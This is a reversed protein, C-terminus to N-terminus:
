DEKTRIENWSNSKNNEFQEVSEFTPCALNKQCINIIDLEEEALDSKPNKNLQEAFLDRIFDFQEENFFDQAKIWGDAVDDDEVMNDQNLYIQLHERAENIRKLAADYCENAMLRYASYLTREAEAVITYDHSYQKM